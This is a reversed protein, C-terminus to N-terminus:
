REKSVLCVFGLFAILGSTMIIAEQEASIQSLIAAPSASRQMFHLAYIVAILALLCLGIGLKKHAKNM